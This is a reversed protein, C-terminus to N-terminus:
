NEGSVGGRIGDKQRGNEVLGISLLAIIAVATLILCVLFIGFLQKLLVGEPDRVAEKGFCLSILLGHSLFVNGNTIWCLSSTFYGIGVDLLIVMAIIVIITMVLRAKELGALCSEQKKAPAEPAHCDPEYQEEKGELLNGVSIGLTESLTGLLSLDPLNTGNEWRSVTKQTVNIQEALEEQTLGKELRKKRILEGTKEQDM